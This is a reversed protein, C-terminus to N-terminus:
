FFGPLKPDFGVVPSKDTVFSRLGAWKPYVRKVYFNAAQEIGDVTIAVDIEEPQADCPPSETEDAPSDLLRGADPKFHFQEDADIVTPWSRVNEAPVPEFLVATRRKPTLGVPHAGALRGIEDGWAGAANVVIRGTFEGTKTRV